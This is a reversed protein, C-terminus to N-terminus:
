NIDLYSSSMATTIWYLAYPLALYRSSSCFTMTECISGDMQRRSPNSGDPGVCEVQVGEHIGTVRRAYAAFTLQSACPLILIDRIFSSHDQFAGTELDYAGRPTFLAIGLKNFAICNRSGWLAPYETADVFGLGYDQNCDQVSKTWPIGWFIEDDQTIKWGADWLIHLYSHLGTEQWQVQFCFFM